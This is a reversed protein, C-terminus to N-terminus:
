GDFDVDTAEVLLRRLACINDVAHQMEEQADAIEEKSNRIILELSKIEDNVLEELTM